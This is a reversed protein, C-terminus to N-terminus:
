DPSGQGSSRALAAAERVLRQLLAAARERGPTGPAPPRYAFVVQGPAKSTVYVTISLPCFAIQRAAERILQWALASSCFQVIQAHQYPSATAGHDGATRELMRNLPLVSGVMLGENEIAEVLAELALDFRSSALRTLEIDNGTARALGAPLLAGTALTAASILMVGPLLRRHCPM